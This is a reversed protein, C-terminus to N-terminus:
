NAFPSPAADAPFLATVANSSGIRAAGAALFAEIQERTRIGGAAKIKIREELTQRLLPMDELQAGAPGFGTSTKLFDAGSANIAHCLEIKDVRHLYCTEVIVKLVTRPVADRVGIIEALARHYAKEAIAGQDLVMDIEDAGQAVAMEAEFAKVGPHHFGCPFGVVTTLRLDPFTLRLREIWAPAACFTAAGYRLAQEAAARIEPWGADPRLLTLDVHSMLDRADM